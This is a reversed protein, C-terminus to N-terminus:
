IERIIEKRETNKETLIRELGKDDVPLRLLYNMIKVQQSICFVMIQTHTYKIHISIINKMFHFMFLAISSIDM